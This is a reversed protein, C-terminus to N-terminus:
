GSLAGVGLFFTVTGIVSMLFPVANESWRSVLFFLAYFPVFLYLFGCIPDESFANGLIRLSGFLNFLGGIVVAPM